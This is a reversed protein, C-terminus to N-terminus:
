LQCGYKVEFITVIIDNYDNCENYCLSQWKDVTKLLFGANATNRRKRFDERWIRFSFLRHPVTQNKM